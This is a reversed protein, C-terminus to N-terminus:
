SHRRIIWRIPKRPVFPTPKELPVAPLPVPEVIPPKGAVRQLAEAIPKLKM